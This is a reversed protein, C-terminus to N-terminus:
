TFAHAVAGLGEQLFIKGRKLFPTGVQHRQPVRPIGLQFFQAQDRILFFHGLGHVVVRGHDGQELQPANWVAVRNFFVVLAVPLQDCVIDRVLNGARDFLKRAVFLSVNAHGIILLHTLANARQQGFDHADLRFTVVVRDLRQYVFVAHM